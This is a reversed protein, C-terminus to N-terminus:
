HTPMWGSIPTVMSPSRPRNATEATSHYRIKSDSTTSGALKDSISMLSRLDAPALERAATALNLADDIFSPQTAVIQPSVPEFNLKKAPSIVALM